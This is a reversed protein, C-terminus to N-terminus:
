VSQPTCSEEEMSSPMMSTFNSSDIDGVKGRPATVLVDGPNTLSEMLQKETDEIRM